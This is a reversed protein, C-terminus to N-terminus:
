GNHKKKKKGNSLGFALRSLGFQTRGLRLAQLQLLCNWFLFQIAAFLISQDLLFHELHIDQRTAKYRRDM